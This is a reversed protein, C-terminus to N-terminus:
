RIDVASGRPYRHILHPFAIYIRVIRPYALMRNTLIKIIGRVHQVNKVTHFIMHRTVCLYRETKRFKGKDGVM